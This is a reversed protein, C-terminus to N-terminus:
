CKFVEKDLSYITPECMILFKLQFFQGQLVADTWLPSARHHAEQRCFPQLAQQSKSLMRSKRNSNLIDQLIDLSAIKKRERGKEKEIGGCLLVNSATTPNHFSNEM